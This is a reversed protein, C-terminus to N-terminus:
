VGPDRAAIVTGLGTKDLEVNPDIWVETEPLADGDMRALELDVCQHEGDEVVIVAHSGSRYVISVTWKTDRDLSPAREFGYKELFDFYPTATERWWLLYKTM